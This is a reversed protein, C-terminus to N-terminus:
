VVFEASSDDGSEIREGEKREPIEPFSGLLADVIFLAGREFSWSDITEASNENDSVGNLPVGLVLCLTERAKKLKWAASDVFGCAAELAACRARELALTLSDHPYITELSRLAECASKAAEIRRHAHCVAAIQVLGSARCDLAECFIRSSTTMVKSGLMSGRMEKIVQEVQKLAQKKTSHIKQTSDGDEGSSFVTRANDIALCWRYIELNRSDGEDTLFVQNEIEKTGDDTSSCGGCKCYFGHSQVLRERRTTAPAQGVVPGYSITVEENLSIERIARVSAVVTNKKKTVEVFANPDCSHNIRSTKLFTVLAVPAAEVSLMRYADHYVVTEFARLPKEPPQTPAKPTLAFLRNRLNECEVRKLFFSNGLVACTAELVEGPGFKPYVCATAVVSAVALRAKTSGDLDAWRCHLDRISENKENKESKEKKADAVCRMALRIESPLVVWWCGTKCELEVHITDADRCGEDCYMAVCCGRCPIPAIPLPVFCSHCRTKWTKSNRMDGNVTEISDPVSAIAIEHQIIPDGPYISLSAFVGLGACKLSSRVEHNISVTLTSVKTVTEDLSIKQQHGVQKDLTALVELRREVSKRARSSSPLVRLVEQFADLAGVNDGLAHSAVGLRIFAKACVHASSAIASEADRKAFRLLSQTNSAVDKGKEPKRLELEVLKLLMAARNSRLTAIFEKDTLTSDPAFRLAENLNFLVNELIGSKFLENANRNCETAHDRSKSAVGHPDAIPRICDRFERQILLAEKVYEAAEHPTLGNLKEVLGACLSKVFSDM